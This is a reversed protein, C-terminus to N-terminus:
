SPSWWVPPLGSLWGCAMSWANRATTCKPMFTCCATSAAVTVLPAKAADIYGPRTRPMSVMGATSPSTIPSWSASRPWRTSTTESCCGYRIACDAVKRRHKLDEALCVTAMGGAGIEHEIAYRDALATKLRNLNDTM